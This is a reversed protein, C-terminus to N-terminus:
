LTFMISYTIFYAPGLITIPVKLYRIDLIEGKSLHFGVGHLLKVRIEKKIM